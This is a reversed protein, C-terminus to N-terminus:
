KGCDCNRQIKGQGFCLRCCPAFHEGSCGRLSCRGPRPCRGWFKDSPHEKRGTITDPIQSDPAMDFGHGASEGDESCRPCGKRWYGKGRCLRCKPDAESDRSTSSSGRSHGGLGSSAHRSSSHHGGSSSHHGGSSSHHSSSTHESPRSRSGYHGGSSSHGGTRHRSSM